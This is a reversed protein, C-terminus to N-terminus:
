DAVLPQYKKRERNPFCRDAVADESTRLVRLLKSIWESMIFLFSPDTLQPFELQMKETTVVVDAGANKAKLFLRDLEDHTYRHHDIFRQKFRM